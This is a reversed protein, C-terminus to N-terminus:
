APDAMNLDCIGTSYGMCLKLKSKRPNGAYIGPMFDHDEQTIQIAPLM